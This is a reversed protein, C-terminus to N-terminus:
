SWDLVADIMRKKGAEPRRHDNRIREMCERKDTTMVTLNGYKIKWFQRKADSNATVILWAQKYGCEADALGALMKNRYRIAASVQDRDAHYLPLDFMEAAIVDADLVLDGDEAREKVYTTKGSGPPGCVVTVPIIAQPLWEPEYKTNSRGHASESATKMMHCPKCIVRLNEPDDSGGIEKNIIHDVINGQTLKGLALCPQCLGSDRKLIVLRLKQWSYGYGRQASSLQSKNFNSEKKSTHVDCRSTGNSVLKGCGPYACPKPPAM